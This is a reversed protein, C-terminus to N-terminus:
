LATETGMPLPKVPAQSRLRGVREVPVNLADALIEAGALGCFRGQCRGMGVRSFAKARNQEGAGLNRAAHRLDGATIAECRCVLADDPLAGAQRAPWPFARELGERFRRHTALEARLAAAEAATDALGADALLASAALRGALEAADAGLARAGDGALYVNPVSSRGDGDAEPLWQRGVSDFAFRCGALDALQTESRLGYGLAVADGLVQRERGRADRFLVASVASDGEIHLPTIGAQIPVRRALLAATFYLGKALTAPRAALRPAASLRLRLPSTDLIAAPSVGVVAYQYAAYYLLPGTGVFIPRRGITCGQAKLAIQAAGLTFVGPLTWGPVPVIRDTAGAAIILADCPEAVTRGGQALHVRGDAIGWALTDPRYDVCDGLATLVGHLRTARGAELGYLESATRRFGAPQRRYIQGGSMSAEDVVTPRLGAEALREAARIGAPGAGVVLVRPSTMRFAAM